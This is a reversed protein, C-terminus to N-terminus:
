PRHESEEARQGGRCIVKQARRRYGRGKRDINLLQVTYQISCM